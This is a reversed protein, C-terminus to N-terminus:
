WQAGRPLHFVREEIKRFPGVQLFDTDFLADLDEHTGEVVYLDLDAGELQRPM